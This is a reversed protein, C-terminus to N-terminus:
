RQLTLHHAVTFSAPLTEANGAIAAVVGEALRHAIGFSIKFGGGLVFLKEHDPHRGAIPDRGIAKPRLGAWREVVPAQELRPAFCCARAILADLQDDTSFPDDFRDESTSGIAVRGDEHPIIYLGDHFIVPWTPDIKADLLAAQGKVPMGIPRKRSGGNLRDLFDFAAVGNALLCTGFSVTRGDSLSARGNQLDIDVADCGEDAIVNQQRGLWEKLVSLLSRPSVRAALTDFVIGSATFADAPWGPIEPREVVNWFFSRGQQNWNALAEHEHRLAIDRLHPKALPMIRGCRRYGASLGTEAELQAIEAELSVLAEYQFQKKANWRDPMHPMLAGLLGGSAGSGIRDREVLHVSIGSRVAKVAAWLGMIGGGVILVDTM